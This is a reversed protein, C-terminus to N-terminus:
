EDPEGSKPTVLGRRVLDDYNRECEEVARRYADRARIYDRILRKREPDTMFPALRRSGGPSFVNTMVIRVEKM